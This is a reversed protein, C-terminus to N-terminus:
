VLFRAIRFFYDKICFFILLLKLWVKQEIITAKAIDYFINSVLDIGFSIWLFGCFEIILFLIIKLSCKYALIYYVFVVFLIGYISCSVVSYRLLLRVCARKGVCFNISVAFVYYSCQFLLTWSETVNIYHHLVWGFYIIILINCFHTVSKIVLGEVFKNRKTCIAKGCIQKSMRCLVLLVNLYLLLFILISFM